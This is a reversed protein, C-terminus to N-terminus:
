LHYWLASLTKDLENTFQFLEFTILSESVKDDNGLLLKRCNYTYAHLELFLEKVFTLVKKTYTSSILSRLASTNQIKFFTISIKRSMIRTWGYRRVNICAVVCDTNILKFYFSKLNVSTYGQSIEYM